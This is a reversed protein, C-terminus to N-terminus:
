EEKWGESWVCLFCFISPSLCALEFGFSPFRVEFFVSM